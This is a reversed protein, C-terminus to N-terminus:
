VLKDSQPLYSVKDQFLIKCSSIFTALFYLQVKIYKIYQNHM